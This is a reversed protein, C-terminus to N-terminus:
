IMKTRNGILQHGCTVAACDAAGTQESSVYQVSLDFLCTNPNEKNSACAGYIVGMMSEEFQKFWLVGRSGLCSETRVSCYLVQSVAAAELDKSRGTNLGTGKVIGNTGNAFNLEYHQSSACYYTATDPVRLYSLILHFDPTLSFRPNNKFTSYFIGRQDFM